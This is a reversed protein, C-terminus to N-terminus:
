ASVAEPYAPALWVTGGAPTGDLYCDANRPLDTSYRYVSGSGIGAAAMRAVDADDIGYEAMVAYDAERLTRFRTLAVEVDGAERGLTSSGFVSAHEVVVRDVTDRLSALARDAQHRADVLRSLRNFRTADALAQEREQVTPVQRTVTLDTDPDVITPTGSMTAIEVQGKGKGRRILAPPATVTDKADLVDGVRVATAKVTVKVNTPM